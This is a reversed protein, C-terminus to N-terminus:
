SDSPPADAPRTDRNAAEVARWAAASEAQTVVREVRSDELAGIRTVLGAHGHELDTVRRDLNILRDIKGDMSAMRAALGPQAQQFVAGSRDRSEEHGLVADVVAALSRAQRRLSAWLGAGTAIIGLVAAILALIATTTM